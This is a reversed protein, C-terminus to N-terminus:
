GIMEYLSHGITEKGNLSDDMVSNYGKGVPLVIETLARSITEEIESIFGASASTFFVTARSVDCDEDRLFLLSHDFGLNLVAAEAVLQLIEKLDQASQMSATVKQLALIHKSRRELEDTAKRSETVDRMNVVLSKVAPNDLFNRAVAELYRISGDKHMGRIKLSVKEGPKELVEGLTSMAMQLDDPHLFEFGGKGVIEDPTYGLIHEISASEYKVTSDEGVVVIVDLANEILARLYEEKQELIHEAELRETVDRAVGVLEVPVKGPVPSASYEVDAVTGDRRKVKTFGHFRGQKKIQAGVSKYIIPLSEESPMFVNVDRGVFEEKSYGLMEEIRDNGWTIVGDKFRFVADALNEVLVSFEAESDSLAKEALKRESIDRSVGLLGCIAGQQDYLFTITQETWLSSGDKCYIELEVTRSKSRDSRSQKKSALEDNLICKLTKVSDPTMADKINLAMLEDVTYGQQREISPSVYTFHLDIDMTFIVDTINEALLRYKEESEKLKIEAQKHETIDRSVGLIGYAIGHEDRLFTIRQEIWITSGNKHYVELELTRSRSLDKQEMQEIALEEAFVNALKKLSDPTVTSGPVQSMIEEVSFGQQRQISPSIYTLNLDMDMAFIVDTINEALLRYSAEAGQILDNDQTSEAIDQAILGLGKGLKFAKINLSVGDSKPHTIKENVFTSGNDGLIGVCKDYFGTTKSDPVIDIINKGSVEDKSVGLLKEGASNASVCNLNEDFLVFADAFTSVFTDFDHKTVEPISVGDRQNTNLSIEKRRAM